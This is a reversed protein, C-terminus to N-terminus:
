GELVSEVKKLLRLEAQTVGAHSPNAITRPVRNFDIVCMDPRRFHEEAAAAVREVFALAKDFDRCQVERVLAQDRRRWGPLM